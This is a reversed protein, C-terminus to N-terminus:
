RDTPMKHIIFRNQMSLILWSSNSFTFTYTFMIHTQRNLTLSVIFYYLISLSSIMLSLLSALYFSPLFSLLVCSLSIWVKNNIIFFWYGYKLELSKWVAWSVQSHSMLFNMGAQKGWHRGSAKCRWFVSFTYGTTKQSSEELALLSRWVWIPTHFIFSVQLSRKASDHKHRGQSDDTFLHFM